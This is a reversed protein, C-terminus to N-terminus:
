YEFNYKVFRSQVYQECIEEVTLKREVNNNWVIIQITGQFTQHNWLSDIIRPLHHSRKFSCISITVDFTEAKPPISRLVFSEQISKCFSEQSLHSKDKKKLYEVAKELMDIQILGTLNTEKPDYLLPYDDGLYQCVSRFRPAVIPLNRAIAELVLTNALGDTKLSLFLISSELIKEYEDSSARPMRKIDKPCNENAEREVVEDGILLVKQVNEPVKARYFFIFDRQYSGILVLDVKRKGWDKLFSLPKEIFNEPEAIPYYITHIPIIHDSKLNENLFEEQVNTLTFLGKCHKFWPRYKRSCLRTLDPVYFEDPSHQANHIIGIWPKAPIHSDCFEQEVAPIFTLDASDDHLEKKLNEISLCFANM